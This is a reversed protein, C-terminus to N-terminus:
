SRSAALASRQASRAEPLRSCSASTLIQRAVRGRSAGVAIRVAIERQRTSGRALLLNAVNGCVILLVLAVAALLVRLAPRLGEVMREKVGGQVEFRPVTLVPANAPRPPRIASGIVNAEDMAATRSVGPRLRGFMTVRPSPKSADIVFPAYFDMSGTPLEFAAPLVGVITMLRPRELEPTLSANFDARFELTAGIAGQDSHFLRRWTDFSLAVVDPNANDAADLTRRARRKLWGM